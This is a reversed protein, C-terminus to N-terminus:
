QGFILTTCHNFVISTSWFRPRFKHDSLFMLLAAVDAVITGDLCPYHYMVIPMVVCSANPVFINTCQSVLVFYHGCCKLMYILNSTSLLHFTPLLKVGLLVSLCLVSYVGDRAQSISRNHQFERVFIQFKSHNSTTFTKLSNLGTREERKERWTASHHTPSTYSFETDGEEVDFPLFIVLNDEM